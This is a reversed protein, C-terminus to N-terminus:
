AAVDSNKEKKLLRKYSLEISISGLPATILIALIAVTLVTNGCSLGMALPIGGIAAQVTAKPSYAFVCFLREKLNLETGILSVVVGMARFMLGGLIVIGAGFGSLAIYRPDVTAGLLVFLIIEAGVWLKNFKKSLRHALTKYNKLLSIGMTMISLLGSIPLVNKLAEELALLLFSISLIILVKMSDRIHIKRFIMTVIYGTVWGLIIGLVISIPVQILNMISMEGGDVLATFSTFLVIVFVDDVSAGAMILQPISKSTGYKEDMLKIMSPVIVAPSVAATVAGIVAAEAVTVGLIKPAILVIGLIELTAPVFCMLVAPRGVKKLEKVDLALGARILIIILAIKRLEPSIGLITGDLVNFVHPGLLIGGIIMGLLRPLGFRKFVDALILGLLFIFALSTLM